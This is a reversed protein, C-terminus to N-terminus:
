EELPFSASTFSIVSRYFTRINRANDHNQTVQYNVLEGAEPSSVGSTAVNAHDATDFIRVRLATVNGAQDHTFNDMVVNEGQNASIKTLQTELPPMVTFSYLADYNPDDALMDKVRVWYTRGTAYGTETTIEGIFFRGGGPKNAPLMVQNSVIYLSTKPDIVDYYIDDHHEEKHMFYFNKGVEVTGLFARRENADVRFQTMFSNGGDTAPGGEVDKVRLAYNQGEVWTLSRAGGVGNFEDELKFDIVVVSRGADIVAADVKIIAQTSLDWVEYFAADWTAEDNDIAIQVRDGKRFTGAYGPTLAM